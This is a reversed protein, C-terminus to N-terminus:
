VPNKIKTDDGWEIKYTSLQSARWKEENEETSEGEFKDLKERTIEGPYASYEVQFDPSDTLIKPESWDEDNYRHDSCFTRISM